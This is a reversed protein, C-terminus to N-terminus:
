KLLAQLWIVEAAAFALARYEAETSSRAVTNKKKSSWSILSNGLYVCYGTTSRRDDPNGAWDADSFVQLSLHSSPRLLLVHTITGKLYRLICKVVSWHTETLSHMFLSVRNVAFAIEPRTVTVYQLAGVISRYLHPDFLLDGDTKSLQLGSQMPTSVPKTGDMKARHLLDDIYRTQSLHFGTSSSIAEIGLFFSLNGLDKITFTADLSSILQAILTPSTGTIIIDDVYVLLYISEHASKNIFLSSDSQSAVFGLSALFDCLQHFWARPAQKLGYLAKRLHCVHDPFDPNVFRPPQTMYVTEELDGHLFANNVDLQRLTWGKSLALTLLTRITVPKVVPNFTETYDLGEEQTYGKAM